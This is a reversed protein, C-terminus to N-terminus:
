SLLEPEGASAGVLTLIRSGERRWWGGWEAAGHLRLARWGERNGPALEVEVARTDMTLGVGLAKLASEKASWILNAVLDREGAAVAAIEKRTFYDRVFADSRPEVAELDAGLPSGADDIAALAMGQRHSLSLSLRLPQGDLFGEPRGSAAARIELGPGPACGLVASLLRKAAWRGLLFDERRWPITLALARAREVPGLWDLKAPRDGQLLARIM